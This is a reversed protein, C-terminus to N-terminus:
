CKWYRVDFNDYSVYWSRRTPTQVMVGRKARFPLAIPVTKGGLQPGTSSSKLGQSLGLPNHLRPRTEPSSYQPWVLPWLYRVFLPEFEIRVQVMGYRVTFSMQPPQDSNRCILRGIRTTPKNGIDSKPAQLLVIANATDDM